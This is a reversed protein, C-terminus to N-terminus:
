DLPTISLLSYKSAYIAATAGPDADFTVRFYYTRNAQAVMNFNMSFPAYKGAPISGGTEAINYNNTTDFLILTMGCANEVFAIINISINFHKNGNLTILGTAYNISNPSQLNNYAMASSIGFGSIVKPNNATFTTLNSTLQVCCGYSSPVPASISEAVTLNNVALNNITGDNDVTLNYSRASDGVRVDKEINVDTFRVFSM